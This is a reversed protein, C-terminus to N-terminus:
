VGPMGASCLQRVKRKRAETESRLRPVYSPLCQCQTHTPGDVRLRPVAPRKHDKRQRLRPLSFDQVSVTEPIQCLVGQMAGSYPDEM